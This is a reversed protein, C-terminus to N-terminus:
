CLYYAFNAYVHLYSNIGSFLKYTLLLIQLNFRIELLNDNNPNNGDNLNGSKRFDVTSIDDALKRKKGSQNIIDM